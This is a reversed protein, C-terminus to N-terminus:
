KFPALPRACMAYLLWHLMLLECVCTIVYMCFISGLEHLYRCGLLPIYVSATFQMCTYFMTLGINCNYNPTKGSNEEAKVKMMKTMM